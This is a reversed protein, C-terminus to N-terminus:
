LNSFPAKLSNTRPCRRAGPAEVVQQRPFEQQREDTRLIKLGVGGQNQLENDGSHTCLRRASRDAKKM